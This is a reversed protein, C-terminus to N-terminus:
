AAKDNPMEIHRYMIHRLLRLGDRSADALGELDRSLRTDPSMLELAKALDAASAVGFQSLLGSLKHALATIQECDPEAHYHMLLDLQENVDREFRAILQPLKEPGVALALDSFAVDDIAGTANAPPRTTEPQLFGIALNQLDHARIPKSLFADFGHALARERDRAFSQATLAVIPTFARKCSLARIASVVDMGSVDPMQIDIFMIDFDQAGAAEIAACGSEVATVSMGVKELIAKAVLLNAPTDDAILVTCGHLIETERNVTAVSIAALPHHALELPLEFNFSTGHGIKSVCEIQGGMLRVLRDSIALGLGSSNKGEARGDDDQEFPQFLRTKMEESIGNGTDSVTFRVTNGTIGQTVKLTIEGGRTFKAANGALNMLVQNLRDFDGHLGHIFNTDAFISIKNNNKEAIVRIVKTVTELLDVPAYDVKRLEMKGTELKTLDLIDNILGLMNDCALAIASTCTHQEVSLNTESLIDSYGIIANMPTRLDHSMMALFDSKAESAKRAKKALVAMKDAQVQLAQQSAQSYALLAAARRETVLTYAILIVLLAAAAIAFKAVELEAAMQVLAPEDHANLYTALAQYRLWATACLYLLASFLGVFVPPFVRKQAVSIYADSGRLLQSFQSYMPRLLRHM